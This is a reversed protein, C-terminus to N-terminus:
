RVTVTFPKSPTTGADNTFEVVYTYKGPQNGEVQTRVHQAAPTKAELTGSDIEVNNELLRYSTANTGWWLDAALTYSGDADKKPGSLVPQGPTAQDVKVTVPKTATVGAANVLEGTYVYTGNPRGAIEVSASQAAPTKVTLDKVAILEDNEYLRFLSANSGWWMNLTVNYDGDRLGTDWGSDTGLIGVGPLAAEHDDPEGPEVPVTPETPDTPDTPDGTMVTVDTSADGDGYAIAGRYTSNPELDKWSAEFTLPVGATGTIGAPVVLPTTPANPNKESKSLTFDVADEGSPVSWAYVFVTYGGAVPDELVVRERKAMTAGSYNGSGSSYNGTDSDRYIVMEMDAGSGNEAGVEFTAETAGPAIEVKYALFSTSRDGTLRGSFPSEPGTAADPAPYQYRTPPVRSDQWRMTEQRFLGSAALKLEGTAGPTVTVKTSGTTGQGIVAAPAQLAGPKVAIPMRSTAGAQNTWTLYGQAFADVPATTRRLSIKVTKTQGAADFTLQAPSTSVEIGPVDASPKWTGAKLSTVTRTAERAGIMEGIALSPINLDTGSTAGESTPDALWRRYATWDGAGAPYYFGADLYRTPQVQGAGQAFVDHTASGDGDVLDGASGMLASRIEAPTAQPREGLYVAALGAVHPSAMSTGSMVVHVPDEGAANAGAAIVTTGPAAVDPKLVNQGDSRIPGRSSSPAIQPVPVAVPKSPQKAFAATASGSAAYEKIAQAQEADVHIAPLVYDLAALDTAGGPVNAMIMGIGGARKVEVGKDVLAFDGRDCIVIRGAARQPDLTGEACLNAQAAGDLAVDAATVVDASAVGQDPITLSQGTFTRGDGLVVDSQPNMYTSNAVSTLWPATNGVTEAGPGSNGASASVFIGANIANLFALDTLSATSPSGGSPGISYNLVDVGDKIAQDIAALLDLTNCGSSGNIMQWCAKYASIKAAPAVGSIRQTYGPGVTAKVGFNGAATSATHTGHSNGDRASKYEGMEPTGIGAGAGAVFYQASILKSNCMSTTFQEGEQCTGVFQQGDAKNFRIAEGDRYPQTDSAEAGLPKGAFSPNEPAIGSDIVGVVVGKGAEEIGGLDEWVGGAGKQDDGMGLFETTSGQLELTEAPVIDAVAPDSALDRAEDADLDAAFGNEAYVYRYLPDVGARDAVADQHKRLYGAYSRSIANGADLREGAEPQTAAFGRVGGDYSAVPDAQLRVIYKGADFTEQHSASPDVPPAASAPPGIALGASVLSIAAVLRLSPRDARQARPSFPIMIEVRIRVHWPTM